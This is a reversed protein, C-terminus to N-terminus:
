EITTQKIYESSCVFYIKKSLVDSIFYEAQMRFIKCQQMTNRDLFWEPSAPSTVHSLFKDLTDFPVNEYLNGKKFATDANFNDSYSVVGFSSNTEVSHIEKLNYFGPSIFGPFWSKQRTTAQNFQDFTQYSQEISGACSSLMLLLAFLWLPKM